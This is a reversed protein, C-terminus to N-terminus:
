HIVLCETRCATAACDTLACETTMLYRLIEASRGAHSLTKFIEFVRVRQIHAHIAKYSEGGASMLQEPFDLHKQLATFFEEVSRLSMLRSIAEESRGEARLVRAINVWPDVLIPLVRDDATRAYLGVLWRLQLDCCELALQRRQLTFLILAAHNLLKGNHRAGSVSRRDAARLEHCTESVWESLRPRIVRGRDLLSDNPTPVM